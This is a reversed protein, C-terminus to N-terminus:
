KLRQVNNHVDTPVSKGSAFFEEPLRLTDGYELEALCCGIDRKITRLGLMVLSLKNAWDNNVIVTTLFAKLQRNLREAMGKAM